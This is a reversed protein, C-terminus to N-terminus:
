DNSDEKKLIEKINKKRELLIKKVFEKITLSMFEKPIRNIINEISEETLLEIKKLYQDKKHPFKKLIEALFDYHNIKKTDIIRICSKAKSTYTQINLSSIKEETSHFERGLSSGNDYAASIRKTDEEYNRIIGWNESHRDTNGIISDFFVIDIFDEINVKEKKLCKEINEFTYFPSKDEKFDPIMAKILVAGEKLDEKTRDLSYEVLIGNKDDNKALETIQVNIQLIKGIETAIKEAWIDGYVNEDYEAPYKFIYKENTTPHIVNMKERTGKSHGMKEWISVDIVEYVSM